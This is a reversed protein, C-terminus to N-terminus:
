LSSAAISGEEANRMHPPDVQMIASMGSGGRSPAAHAMELVPSETGRVGQSKECQGRAHRPLPSRCSTARRERVTGREASSNSGLLARDEPSTATSGLSWSRKGPHGLASGFPGHVPLSDLARRQCSAGSPPVRLVCRATGPGGNIRPLANGLPRGAAEQLTWPPGHTDGMDGSLLTVWTGPQV